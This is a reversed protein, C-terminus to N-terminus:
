DERALRAEALDIERELRILVDDGIKDERWLKIRADRQAAAIACVMVLILSIILDKGREGAQRLANEEGGM